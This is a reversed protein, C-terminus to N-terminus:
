EKNINFPSVPLLINQEAFEQQLQTDLVAQVSGLEKACQYFQRKYKLIELHRQLEAIQQEVKEVQAQFLALRQEITSDGYNLWEVFQKIEKLPMGTNKLCMLLELWEADAQSFLRNGSLDRQISPLLGEKEYFRLTHSSVSLKKALQSITYFNKPNNM